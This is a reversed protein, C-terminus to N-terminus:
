PKVILTGGCILNREVEEKCPPVACHSSRPRARLARPYSAGQAQLKRDEAQVGTSLAVLVDRCRTRHLTVTGSFVNADCAPVNLSKWEFLAEMPPVLLDM